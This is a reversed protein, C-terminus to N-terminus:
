MEGVHRSCHLSRWTGLGGRGQGEERQIQGWDVTWMKVMSHGEEIGGLVAKTVVTIIVLVAQSSERSTVM